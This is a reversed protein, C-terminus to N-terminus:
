ILLQIELYGIKLCVWDSVIKGIGCDSVTKRIGLKEKWLKSTKKWVYVEIRRRAYRTESLSKPHQKASLVLKESPTLSCWQYTM